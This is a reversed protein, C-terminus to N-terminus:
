LFFSVPHVLCCSDPLHRLTQIHRRLSFTECHRTCVVANGDARTYFCSKFSLYIKSSCDTCACFTIHTQKNTKKLLILYHLNYFPDTKIFICKVYDREYSVGASTLSLEAELPCLATSIRKNLEPRLLICVLCQM